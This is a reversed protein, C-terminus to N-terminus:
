CANGLHFLYLYKLGIQSQINSFDISESESFKAFSTFLFVNELSADGDAM